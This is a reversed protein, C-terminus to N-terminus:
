SASDVSVGVDDDGDFFGFSLKFVDLTAGIKPLPDVLRLSSVREAVDGVTRFVKRLLCSCSRAAPLALSLIGARVGSTVSAGAGVGAGKISVGVSVGVRISSGSDATDSVM